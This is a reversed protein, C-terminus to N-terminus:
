GNGARAKSREMLEQLASKEEQPKQVEVRTRAAPTMGFEQWLARMQKLANNRVSVWATPHSYGKDTMAVAGHEEIMQLATRYLATTECLTALADVDIETLLGAQWLARAHQRWIRQADEPLWGPMSPTRKPRLPQPENKPLPRHSPNGELVRM